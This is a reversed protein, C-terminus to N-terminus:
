VRIAKQLGTALYERYARFGIIFGDPLLPICSPFTWVPTLGLGAHCGGRGPLSVGTTEM